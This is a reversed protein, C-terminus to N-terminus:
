LGLRREEAERVHVARPYQLEVAAGRSEIREAWCRGYCDAIPSALNRHAAAV